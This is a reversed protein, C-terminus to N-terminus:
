GADSVEDFHIGLVWIEFLNGPTLTTVTCCRSPWNEERDGVWEVWIRELAPRHDNTTLYMTAHLITQRSGGLERLVRDLKAFTKTIQSEISDSRDVDTAVVTVMDRYASGSSRGPFVGKSRKITSRM